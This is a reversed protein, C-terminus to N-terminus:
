VLAIGAGAIVWTLALWALPVTTRDRYGNLDGHGSGFGRFGTLVGLGCRGL